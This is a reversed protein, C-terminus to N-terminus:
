RIEAAGGGYTTAPNSTVYRWDVINLSMSGQNKQVASQKTAALIPTPKYVPDCTMTFFRHSITTYMKAGANRIANKCFAV